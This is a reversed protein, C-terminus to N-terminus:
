TCCKFFIFVHWDMCRWDFRRCVYGTNDEDLCVLCSSTSQRLDEIAPSESTVKEKSLVRIIPHPSTLLSTWELVPVKTYANLLPITNNYYLLKIYNLHKLEFKLVATRGIFYVLHNLYWTLWPWPLTSWALTIWVVGYKLEFILDTVTLSTYELCTNDVSGWVKIVRSKAAIPVPCAAVWKM